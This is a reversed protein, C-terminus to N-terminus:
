IIRCAFSLIRRLLAISFSRDFGSSVSACIRSIMRASFIGVPRRKAFVVAMFAACRLSSTKHRDTHFQLKGSRVKLPQARFSLRKVCVRQRHFLREHLGHHAFEFSSPSSRNSAILFISTSWAERPLDGALKERLVAPQSQFSVAESSAAVGVM